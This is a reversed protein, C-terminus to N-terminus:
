RELRALVGRSWVTYVAVMVTALAMLANGLHTQSQGAGTQQLLVLAAMGITALM